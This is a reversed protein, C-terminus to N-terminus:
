GGEGGGEVRLRVGGSAGGGGGEGKGRVRGKVEMGVVLFRGRERGGERFRVEFGKGGVEGEIFGRVAEEGGAFVVPLSREWHCVELERTRARQVPTMIELAFQLCKPTCFLFTMTSSLSGDGNKQSQNRLALVEAHVLRCVRLLSGMLARSALSTQM